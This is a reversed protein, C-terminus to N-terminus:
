RGESLIRGVDAVYINSAVRHSHTRSVLEFGCKVYLRNAARNDSGVLVKLKQIGRRECEGLGEYILRTGVGKEGAEPRVVISLLEADPLRMKATRSPYMLTQLIKRTREVSFIKPWLQLAFGVGSKVIVSRYLKHVNTTLAVFGIVQAGQEAVFGFGWKSQAVAAYLATVFEPGLSSIFGSSIGKIHLEAIARADEANIKRTNVTQQESM